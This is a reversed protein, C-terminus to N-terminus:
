NKYNPLLNSVYEKKGSLVDNYFDQKWDIYDISEQLSKIQQKLEEQKQFLFQKRVDISKPGQLCLDLYYKMENISMNCKKLCTLDKIWNLDHEDFIRHNNIDRKVNPILGQNCYFKLTEYSINTQKCVQSMTYM